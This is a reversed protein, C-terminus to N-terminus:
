LYTMLGRLIMIELLAVPIREQLPSHLRIPDIQAPSRSSTYLGCTGIHQWCTKSGKNDLQIHWSWRLTHQLSHLPGPFLTFSIMRAGFSSWLMSRAFMCADILEASRGGVSAAAPMRMRSSSWFLDIWFVPSPCHPLRNINFHCITACSMQGNLARELTLHTAPGDAKWWNSTSISSPPSLRVTISSEKLQM